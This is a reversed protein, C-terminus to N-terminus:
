HSKAELSQTKHSIKFCRPTPQTSLLCVCITHYLTNIGWGVRRSYSSIGMRIQPLQQNSRAKLQVWSQLITQPQQSTLIRLTICEWVPSHLLKAEKSQATCSHDLQHTLGGQPILSIRVEGLVVGKKGLKMRGSHKKQRQSVSKKQSFSSTM